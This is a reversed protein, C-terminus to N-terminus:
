LAKGHMPITETAYAVAIQRRLVKRAREISRRKVGFHKAADKIKWGRAIVQWAALRPPWASPQLRVGLLIDFAAETRNFTVASEAEEDCSSCSSTSEDDPYDFEIAPVIRDNEHPQGIVKIEAKTEGLWSDM